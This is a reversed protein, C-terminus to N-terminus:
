TVRITGDFSSIRKYLHFGSSLIYPRFKLLHNQAARKCGLDHGQSDCQLFVKSENINAICDAFVNDLTDMQVVVKKNEAQQWRVFMDPVSTSPSYLSAM